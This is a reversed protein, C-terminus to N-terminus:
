EYFEFLYEPDYEIDNTELMSIYENKFTKLSHHKEQSLIYNYIADIQSHHYTFAGYGEQWSFHGPVLRNDNIFVSSVRKIDHVTDSISVSPHMGLFIHIHDSFGNVIISKHKLNTAIGSIYEFIRPRISPNLLNERYRVAFVLQVYMQRFVGPKM